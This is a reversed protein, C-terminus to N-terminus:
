IFFYYKLKHPRNLFYGVENGSAYFAIIKALKIEYGELNM